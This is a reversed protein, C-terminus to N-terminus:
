KINKFFHLLAKLKELPQSRAIAKQVNAIVQPAYIHKHKGNFCFTQKKQLAPRWGTKTRNNLM